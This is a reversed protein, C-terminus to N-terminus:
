RKILSADLTGFRVLQRLEARAEEITEFKPLFKSPVDNVAGGASEEVIRVKAEGELTAIVFRARTRGCFVYDYSEVPKLADGLETRFIGPKSTLIIFV